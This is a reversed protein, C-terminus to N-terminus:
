LSANMTALPVIFARFLPVAAAGFLLFLSTTISVKAGNVLQMLSFFFFVICLYIVNFVSIYYHHM